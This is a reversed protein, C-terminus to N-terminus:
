NSALVQVNSASASALQSVPVHSMHSDMLDAVALPKPQGASWVIATSFVFNLHKAKGGSCDKLSMDGAIAPMSLLALVVTAACFTRFSLM